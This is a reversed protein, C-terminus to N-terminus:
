NITPETTKTTLFLSSDWPGCVKDSLMKLHLYEFISFQTQQWEHVIPSKSWKNGFEYKLPSHLVSQKDPAQTQAPLM